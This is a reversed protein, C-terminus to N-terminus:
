ERIEGLQAHRSSDEGKLLLIRKRIRRNMEFLADWVFFDEDDGLEGQNFREHFEKSSMNYKREFRKLKDKVESQESEEKQLNHSIIKNIARETFTDTDNLEIYRELTRINELTAM